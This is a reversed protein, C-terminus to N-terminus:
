EVVVLRLVQTHSGNSIIVQYVGSPLTHTEIELIGAGVPWPLVAVTRGTADSLGVTLTHAAGGPPRRLTARGAAPNPYLTFAPQWGGVEERGVGSQVTVRVPSVDTGCGPLTPNTAFLFYTTTTDPTAVPNPCATCSLGAAPEWQYTVNGDPVAPGLTISQGQLLATDRGADAFPAFMAPLRYNPNNPTAHATTAGSPLVFSFPEFGVSDVDTADPFNVVSLTTDALFGPAAEAPIYIRGDPALRMQTFWWHFIYNGFPPMYPWGQFDNFGWVPEFFLSDAQLDCRWLNQGEGNSYLYRGNPSFCLGYGVTRYFSYPASSPPLPSLPFPIYIPTSLIGTCRDFDAVTIANGGFGETHGGRGIAVRDGQLSVATPFISYCNGYSPTGPNVIPLPSPLPGYVGNATSLFAMAVLTPSCSNHAVVWYDQGNVHPIAVISEAIKGQWGIQPFYTREPAYVNTSMKLVCGDPCTDGILFDTYRIAGPYADMATQISDFKATYIVRYLGQESAIPYMVAGSLHGSPAGINAGGTMIQHQGNRLECTFENNPSTSFRYANLYALLEGTSTSICTSVEAADIDNRVCEASFLSDPGVSSFRIGVRDPMVWVDGQRQATLQVAWFTFALLLYPRM